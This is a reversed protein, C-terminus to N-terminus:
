SNGPKPGVTFVTIKEDEYEKKAKQATDELDQIQKQTVVQRLMEAEAELGYIKSTLQSEKRKAILHRVLLIAGATILGWSKLDLQFDLPNM